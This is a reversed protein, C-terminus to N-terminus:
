DEDTKVKRIWDASLRLIYPRGGSSATSTSRGPSTRAREIVLAQSARATGIETTACRIETCYREILTWTGFRVGCCMTVLSRGNGHRRESNYTYHPPSSLRLAPDLTWRKPTRPVAFLLHSPAIENHSDPELTRSSHAVDDTWSSKGMPGDLEERLGLSAGGPAPKPIMSPITMHNSTSFRDIDLWGIASRVLRRGQSM